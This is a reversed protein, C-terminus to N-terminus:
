PLTSVAKSAIPLMRYHVHALRRNWLESPEISDHVFAQELQGKLKYLGGDQEGIITADDITKGRPWMLVQGDVFAVCFGKADLSSISLLNKKLGPIYHVNKMKMSKDSDM